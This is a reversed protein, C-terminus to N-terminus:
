EELRREHVAIAKKLRAIRLPLFCVPYFHREEPLTEDWWELCRDLQWQLREISQQPTM